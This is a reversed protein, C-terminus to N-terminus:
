KDTTPHTPDSRLSLYDLPLKDLSKVQAFSVEDECRVATTVDIGDKGMAEAIERVTQAINDREGKHQPDILALLNVHYTEDANLERQPTLKIYLATVHPSLRKYLKERRNQSAQVRSNFSTPFAARKYRDALWHQLTQLHKRSLYRSEDPYIDALRGRDITFRKPQALEIAQAGGKEFNVEVHLKRPSKAATLRSDLKAIPIGIMLEAFPEGQADSHALDCSHSIVVVIAEPTSRVDDSLAQADEAKIISGQRWGQQEIAQGIDDM